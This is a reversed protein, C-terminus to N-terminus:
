VLARLNTVGRTTSEDDDPIIDTFIQEASEVDEETLRSRQKVMAAIDSNTELNNETTTRGGTV